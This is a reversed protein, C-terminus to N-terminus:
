RSALKGRKHGGEQRAVLRLSPHFSRFGSVCLHSIRHLPTPNSVATLRVLVVLMNGSKVDRHIADHANHLYVLAHAMDLLLALRLEWSPVKLAGGHKDYLLGTLDGEACFEEVMFINGDEM